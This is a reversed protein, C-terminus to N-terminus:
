RLDGSPGPMARREGDASPMSRSARAAILRSRVRLASRPLTRRDASFESVRVAPGERGRLSGRRAPTRLHDHHGAQTGRSGRRWSYSIPRRNAMRASTSDAMVAHLELRAGRRQELAGGLCISRAPMGLVVPGERSASTGEADLRQSSQRSVPRYWRRPPLLLTRSCLSAPSSGAPLEFPRALTGEAAPCSQAIPPLGVLFTSPLLRAQPSESRTLVQFPRNYPSM